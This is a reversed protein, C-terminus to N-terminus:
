IIKNKQIRANLEFTRLRDKYLNNQNIKVIDLKADSNGEWRRCLYIPEYIRGIKYDRSITIGVGYDEGYSVNPIKIKRLVPTYFARPAGLGNIRLANNPGNNATWERHDILGPPIENLQLDTLKYSGVVMACKESYFLEVITQVTNEDSYVDDSDLQISFKGCSPHHVAENWCGGIGLDNRDPIVHVIKDTNKSKNKIVDTTGDTSHNDVIILNFKFKTKQKLVSDIADGVTKARNRVPIIVSAEYEFSNDSKLDVEAFPPTLYANIVKLHETVVQEMEIQVERNKPDVYSFHKEESGINEASEITYLYEPIRVLSYKQSIRLRLDYIGAHKYNGHMSKVASKLAETRLLLIQGFDFDDRLSGSQYDILPHPLLIGKEEEYYDSYVIGANMSEAVQVFRELSFKNPRVTKESLLLLVYKTSVGDAINKITETSNFYDSIITKVDGFKNKGSNILTIEKILESTRFNEITKRAATDSGHPIFVSILNQM